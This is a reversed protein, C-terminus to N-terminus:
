GKARLEKLQKERRMYILYEMKNGKFDGPLDTKWVEENTFSKMIM